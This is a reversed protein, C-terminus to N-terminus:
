KDVIGVFGAFPGEKIDVEVGEIFEECAVKSVVVEGKVQSIIREVEKKTLPVPDKGGLFKLIKPTSSVIALSEPTKEMEILIYGPFLREDVQEEESLSLVVLTSGFLETKSPWVVKSFERKVGDLFQIVNKM